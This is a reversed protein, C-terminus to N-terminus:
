SSFGIAALHTDVEAAIANLEANLQEVTNAYRTGLEQIRALLQEVLATTVEKARAAVTSHWKADVVLRRVDDAGLKGCQELTALDLAAKKEKATKKAASEAEFLSIM